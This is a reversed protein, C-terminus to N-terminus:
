KPIKVAYIEGTKNYLKDNRIWQNYHRIMKYSTGYSKAFDVWNVSSDVNVTYYELEPYKDEELLSFGFGEPNEYIMKLALIRFVYRSTESNLYLDYYSMQQQSSLRSTVGATGMNYGAAAATWTGTTELANKLYKCAARTSKELDYREDVDSNVKLGYQAATTKMFQWYGAAGASSVVEDLGSEAMCLYKFDDPVGEEKLIKEITPFFRKSRKLMLLTSSHWNANVILERDLRERVEIDNLPVPEGAFDLKTPLKVAYHQAGKLPVEQMNTNGKSIFPVYIGYKDATSRIFLFAVIALAFGFFINKINKNM